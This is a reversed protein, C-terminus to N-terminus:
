KRGLLSGLEEIQTEIYLIRNDISPCDVGLEQEIVTWLGDLVASINDLVSVLKLDIDLDQSRALKQTITM